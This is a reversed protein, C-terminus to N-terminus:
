DSLLDTIGNKYASIMEYLKSSYNKFFFNEYVNNKKYLNPDLVELTKVIDNIILHENSYSSITNKDINNISINSKLTFNDNTYYSIISNNINIIKNAIQNKDEISLNKNKEMFKQISNLQNEVEYSKDSNYNDLIKENLKELNWLKQKKSRELKSKNNIYKLFNKEGPKIQISFSSNNDPENNIDIKSNNTPSTNKNNTSNTYNKTKNSPTCDGDGPCAYIQKAFFIFIVCILIKKKM